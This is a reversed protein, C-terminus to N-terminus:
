PMWLNMEFSIISGNTLMSADHPFPKSSSSNVSLCTPNVTNKGFRSERFDTFGFGKKGSHRQKWFSFIIIIIIRSLIREM